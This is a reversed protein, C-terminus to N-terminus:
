KKYKRKYFEWLVVLIVILVLEVIAFVALEEIGRPVISFVSVAFFYIPWFIILLVIITSSILFSLKKDM